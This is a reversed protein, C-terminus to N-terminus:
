TSVTVAGAPLERTLARAADVERGAGAGGPMRMRVSLRDPHEFTDADALAAAPRDLQDAWAVADEELGALLVPVACM